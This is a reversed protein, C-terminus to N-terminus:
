DHKFYKLENLLEKRRTNAIERWVDSHTTEIFNVLAAIEQEIDVAMVKDSEPKPKPLRGARKILGMKVRKWAVSFEARKLRHAIWRDSHDKYNLEIFNLEALTYQYSPEPKTSMNSNNFIFWTVMFM